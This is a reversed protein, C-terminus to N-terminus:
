RISENDILRVPGAFAAAALLTGQGIRERPELTEADVAAVYDVRLGASEMKRRMADCAKRADDKGARWQEAAQQLAQHISLAARRQDPTLRRNRSSMALGDPERVIPAAVIEVEFNLDRVMRRLIALQQYDKQGFVAVQPRVCHFLKAVVTCVGRFHGPRSAGCLTTSLSEEVVFVSHRSAYMAESAPMFLVDVGRERCLATDREADRPYAAFDEGPGFQTPNVFVSVVVRDAHHQAIDILSLHGPHLWGMTPVLAIREGAALRERSWAQM